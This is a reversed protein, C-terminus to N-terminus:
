AARGDRIGADGGADHDRRRRLWGIGVVIGLGLGLLEVAPPEPVSALSVQVPGTAVIGITGDVIPNGQLDNNPNVILTVGVGQGSADFLTLGFETGSWPGAAAPGVEPGSLTVFVDFFSGVSLDQTLESVPASNDATVGVPSALDGAATGIIPTARGLAGDTSPNLVDMLVSAPSRSFDPALVIVISGDPGPALGSTDAQVEYTVSGAHALGPHGIGCIALSITLGTAFFGRATM